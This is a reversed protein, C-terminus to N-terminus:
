PVNLYHQVHDELTGQAHMVLDCVDRAAGRGGRSPTEWHVYRKVLPHADAVAVALGARRLIPLDVIDDGVFAAQQPTLSLRDILAQFVPLKEEQGQFVHRISLSEMRRAVAPTKRGSIVGVEVGSRLLTKIGHGDRSHFIKYEGGHDDIFLGGDTLVGDVDFLVLRVARARAYVEPGAMDPVSIM